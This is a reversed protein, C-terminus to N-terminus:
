GRATSTLKTANAQLTPRSKYVLAFYEGPSPDKFPSILEFVIRFRVTQNEGASQTSEALFLSGELHQVSVKDLLSEASPPPTKAFVGPKKELSLLTQKTLQDTVELAQVQSQGQFLRDSSPTLKRTTQDFGTLVARADFIVRSIQSAINQAYQDTQVQKSEFVYSIKDSEFTQKTIYVYLGMFGTSLLIFFATIRWKISHFRM